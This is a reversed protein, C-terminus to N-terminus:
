ATALSQGFLQQTEDRRLLLFREDYEVVQQTKRTGVRAFGSSSSKLSM